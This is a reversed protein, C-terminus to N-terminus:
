LWTKNMNKVWKQRKFQRIQQFFFSVTKKKRYLQHTQDALTWDECGGAKPGSTQQWEELHRQRSTSAHSTSNFDEKQILSFFAKVGSSLRWTQKWEPTISFTHSPTLDRLKWCTLGLAALFSSSQCFVWQNEAKQEEVSPGIVPCVLVLSSAFSCGGLPDDASTRVPCFRLHHSERVKLTFHDPIIHWSDVSNFFTGCALDYVSFIFVFSLIVCFCIGLAFIVAVISCSAIHHEM